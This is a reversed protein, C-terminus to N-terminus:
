NGAEATQARRTTPAGILVTAALIAAGGLLQVPAIAEGLVLAGLVVGSLAELTMVVATRSPGLRSLAAFLLTFATATAVGNLAMVWADDGPDRLGGTALGHATLSVAAGLAVWAANVMPDTRTVLRRGALLYLAFGAAAALAFAIGTTSIAVDGGSLVIVATGAGSLALAALVRRSPPMWGLALELLTVMAPYAYFLLAVAAATGRELASYFLTAQAAYGVTGLLLPRLREGVPPLLPRRLIGLLVFLCAASISFRVSLTAASGFGSRALARNCVITVGYSV